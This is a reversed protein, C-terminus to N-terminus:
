HLFESNISVLRAGYQRQLDERISEFSEGVVIGGGHVLPNGYHEVLKFRVVVRHTCDNAPKALYRLLEPKLEVIKGRWKQIASKPGRVAISQGDPTVTLALGDSSIQEIIRAPNM